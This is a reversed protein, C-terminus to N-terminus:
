GSWSGDGVGVATVWELQRRGSWWSGDGVGSVEM